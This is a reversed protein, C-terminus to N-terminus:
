QGLDSPTANRTRRDHRILYALMVLPFVIFPTRLAVNALPSGDAAAYIVVAALDYGIWVCMIIQGARIRRRRLLTFLYLGLVAMALATLM